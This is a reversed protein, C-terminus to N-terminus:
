RNRDIREYTKRRVNKNRCQQDCYQYYDYAM